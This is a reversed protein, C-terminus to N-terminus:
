TSVHVICARSCLHVSTLWYRFDRPCNNEKYPSTFSVARGCQRQERMLYNSDTRVTSGKEPGFVMRLVVGVCMRRRKKNGYLSQSFVWWNWRAGCVLTRRWLSVTAWVTLLEDCKVYGLLERVYKFLGIVRGWASGLWELGSGRVGKEFMWKLAKTGDAGLGGLGASEKVNESQLGSRVRWVPVFYSERWNDRATWLCLHCTPHTEQGSRVGEQGERKAGGGGEISESNRSTRINRRGEGQIRSGARATFSGHWKRRKTRRSVSLLNISVCNLLGNKQVIQVLV